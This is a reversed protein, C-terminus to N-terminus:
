LRQFSHREGEIGEILSLASSFAILFGVEPSGPSYRWVGGIGKEQEFCVVTPIGVEKM